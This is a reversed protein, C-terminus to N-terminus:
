AIVWAMWLWPRVKAKFNSGAGEQATRHPNSSPRESAPPAVLEDARRGAVESERLRSRCFAHPRRPLSHRLPSRYIWPPLTTRVALARSSRREHSGSKEALLLREKVSTTEKFDAEQAAIERRRAELEDELEAVKEHLSAINDQIDKQRRTADEVIDEIRVNVSSLTVRVVRVVLDLNQELPLSRMLRMADAIGYHSSVATRAGSEDPDLDLEQTAEEQQQRSRRNRNRSKESSLCPGRGTHNGGAYEQPFPHQRSNCVM